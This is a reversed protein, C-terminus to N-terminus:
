VGNGDQGNAYADEGCEVYTTWAANDQLKRGRGAKPPESTLEVLFSDDIILKKESSDNNLFNVKFICRSDPALEIEAGESLFAYQGLLNEDCQTECAFLNSRYNTDCEFGPDYEESLCLGMNEAYTVKQGNEFEHSCDQATSLYM